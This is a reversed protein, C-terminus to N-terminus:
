GRDCGPMCRSRILTSCGQPGYARLCIKWLTDGPVVTYSTDRFVASSLDMPPALVDAPQNVSARGFPAADAAPTIQPVPAAASRSREAEVIMIMGGPAGMFGGWSQQELLPPVDIIVLDFDRANTNLWDRFAAKSAFGSDRRHLDSINVLTLGRRSTETM